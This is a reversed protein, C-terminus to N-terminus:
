RSPVERGAMLDTTAEPLKRKAASWLIGDHTAASQPSLAQAKWETLM